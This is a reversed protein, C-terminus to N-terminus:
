YGGHRGGSRRKGEVNKKLDHMKEDSAQKFKNLKDEFSLGEDNNRHWDVDLPNGRLPGSPTAPRRPARPGRSGRDGAYRPRDGQEAKLAQKISLAIKNKDISLVKVKVTDGVKLHDKIEKVYELAVESIHVLGTVNGELEVFAGFNTIGTVKGEVISGVEFPM